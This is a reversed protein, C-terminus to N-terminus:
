FQPLNYFTVLRGIVGKIILPKYYRMIACSASKFSEVHRADLPDPYHTIARAVYPFISKADLAFTETDSRRVFREKRATEAIEGLLAVLDAFTLNDTVLRGYLPDLDKTPTPPLPKIM